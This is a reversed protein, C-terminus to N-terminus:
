IAQTANCVMKKKRLTEDCILTWYNFQMIPRRIEGPKGDPVSLAPPHMTFNTEAAYSKDLHLSAFILFIFAIKYIHKTLKNTRM